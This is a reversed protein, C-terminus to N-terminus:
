SLRTSSRRPPPELQLLQVVEAAEVAAAIQRLRQQAEPLSDGAAEDRMFVYADAITHRLEAAAEIRCATSVDSSPQARVWANYKQWLNMSALIDAHILELEQAVHELHLAEARATDNFAVRGATHESIFDLLEPLTPLTM